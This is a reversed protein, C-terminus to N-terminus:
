EEDPKCLRRHAEDLARLEDAAEPVTQGLREIIRRNILEAARSDALFLVDGALVRPGSPTAAIPYLLFAPEEDSARPTHRISAGAWRGSRHVGLLELSDAAPIERGLFDLLREAAQPAEFLASLRLIQRADRSGLAAIWSEALARTAAEDPASDAAPKGLGAEVGLAALHETASRERLAEFWGQLAEPLEGARPSADPAMQWGDNGRTARLPRILDPRIEPSYPDLIVYALCAEDGAAEAGLFLHSVNQQQSQRWLRAYSSLALRAADEDGTAIWGLAEGFGTSGLTELFADGLAAPTDARLPERAQFLALPMAKVLDSERTSVLPEEGSGGLWTPLQVRWLEGSPRTLQFHHIRIAEDLEEARLPDFLGLTVVAEEAATDAHLPLTLTSDRLLEAWDGRDDDAERLGKATATVIADWNDPVPEELGGLWAVAAPLRGTRCADIFGAVVKEPRAELLVDRDLTSRVEDLFQERKESRLGDLLKSRQELMWAELRKAAPGLTPHYTLGLNEFSAPVPAPLWADNRQLLGVAHVQLSSPDARQSASILVAALGAEAKEGVVKRDSGRLREGLLDLRKRIDEVKEETADPSLATDEELRLQQKEIRDLYALAAEGPEGAPAALPLLVILGALARIM